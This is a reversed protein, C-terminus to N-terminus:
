SERSRAEGLEEPTLPLRYVRVGLADAVANAIAAATPSMPLEGMGKAGFPGEPHPNRVGIAVMEPTHEAKLLGLKAYHDTVPRGEELRYSESLGYGMGMVIGGEIQGLIGQPNVPTGVDHAAIVKLVEIENTEENVLVVAAQAGFSYAFHLRTEEPPTDPVPEVHDPVPYTQPAVYRYTAEFTQGEEAARSAVEELTTLLEDGDVTRFAGRALTVAEPELDFRGAVIAILDGRLM